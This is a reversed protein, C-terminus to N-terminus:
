ISKVKRIKIEIIAGKKITFKGFSHPIYCDNNVELLKAKRM